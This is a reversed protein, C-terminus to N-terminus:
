VESGRRDGKRRQSTFNSSQGALFSVMDAVDLFAESCSCLMDGGTLVSGLFSVLSGAHEAAGDGTFGM